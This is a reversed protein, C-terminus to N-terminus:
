GPKSSIFVWYYQYPSGPVQAFGIGYDIQEAFFSTKGLIHTVHKNSAMWANWMGDADGAGAGISEINNGNVETSYESPLQYGASRVLYNPGQGDPNVHDLIFQIPRTIFPGDDEKYARHSELFARLALATVGVSQSWSGDEAQTGRLYHMGSDAARQAKSRLDDDMLADASAHTFAFLSLALAVGIQRPHM